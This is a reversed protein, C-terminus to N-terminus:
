CKKNKYLITQNLSTAPYAEIIDPDNLSSQFDKNLDKKLDDNMNEKINKPLNKEVEPNLDKKIISKIVKKEYETRSKYFKEIESKAKILEDRKLILKEAKEENGEIVYLEMNFGLVKIHTDMSSYIYMIDKFLKRDHKTDKLTM